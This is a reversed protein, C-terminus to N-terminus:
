VRAGSLKSQKHFLGDNIDRIVKCHNFKRLYKQM